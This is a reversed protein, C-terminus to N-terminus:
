GEVRVRGTQASIIVERTRGSPGKVAIRYARETGGGVASARGNKQFQIFLPVYSTFSYGQPLAGQISISRAQYITYWRNEPAGSIVLTPSSQSNGRALAQTEEVAQVITQMVWDSEIRERWQIGQPIVMTAFISAFAIAWCLELLLYGSRKEVSLFKVISM